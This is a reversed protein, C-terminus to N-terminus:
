RKELGSRILLIGGGLIGAGVLIAVVSGVATRLNTLDISLGVVVFLAVMISGVVIRRPRAPRPGKPPKM